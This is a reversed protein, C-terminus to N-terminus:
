TGNAQGNFANFHISIYVEVKSANAKNCRQSLSDKVSSARDPKCAIVEHGLARLKTIVRNGVDLTLNDEFKIGRAGTDPPCNHGIDIGYRM